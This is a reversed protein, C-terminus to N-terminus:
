TIFCVYKCSTTNKHFVSIDLKRNKGHVNLELKLKPFKPSRKIYLKLISLQKTKNKLLKQMKELTCDINVHSKSDTNTYMINIDSM